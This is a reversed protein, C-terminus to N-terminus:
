RQNDATFKARSVTFIGWTDIEMDQKKFGEHQFLQDLEAQSRRRMIWPKGLRNTLTYAIFELQPHWPQGTYVISCDDAAISRIGSISRLVMTNDSFLEYLGSIIILNPKIALEAYGDADFADHLRFTVNTCGLGDAIKKGEVVNAEANDCLVIEVDKGQLKVAKELLYRGPGSAIDLIRVPKNASLLEDVAEDIMKQLHQKRVRIGKWGVADLYMRDMMRGVFTVGEAKNKYVHDLSLGSDYGYQEGISIGRGLRGITAMNLKALGYFGKKIFSRRGNLVDYENKTYGQTDQDLLSPRDSERAYLDDLFDSIKTLAVDREKEYLVGHYFGPYVVMEKNKSSLNDFFRKQDKLHVVWDSGASLILTPTEIVGADQVVRKATSFLSLLVNAAIDKTILPDTDYKKQEEVDHTLLRSKVYSKIFIPRKFLQMIKLGALAFPVYLKINFAPAVLVMGRVAPAYDHIWTSAVVSGVSNALITVNSSDFSYKDTVYSVFVDLDKVLQSFDDCYGRPGPSEGHGRSDYAFCTYGKRVFYEAVARLRGSHEHGRHILVIARESIQEPRWARYVLSVGDFTEFVGKEEKM